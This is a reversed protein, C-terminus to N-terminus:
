EVRFDSLGFNQGGCGPSTALAIPVPVRRLVGLRNLVKTQFRDLWVSTAPPTDTSTGRYLYRVPGINSADRSFLTAIQIGERADRVSLHCEGRQGLVVSSQYIKPSLTTSFGQSRLARALQDNVRSEPAGRGDDPPGASAKLGVSVLALAFVAGLFAKNSVNLRM